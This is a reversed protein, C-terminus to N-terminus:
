ATDERVGYWHLDRRLVIHIDSSFFGDGKDIEPLADNCATTVYDPFDPLSRLAAIMKIRGMVCLDQPRVGMSKCTHLINKHLEILIVNSPTPLTDTTM